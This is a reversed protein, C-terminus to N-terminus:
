SSKILRYFVCDDHGDEWILFPWQLGTDQSVTPQNQFDQELIAWVLAQLLWGPLLRLASEPWPSLRSGLPVM